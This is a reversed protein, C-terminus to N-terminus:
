DKGLIYPEEETGAGSKIYVGEVMSVVPRIGICQYDLGRHTEGSTSIGFLKNNGNHTAVFYSCGINKIEKTTIINIEDYTLCHVEKIFELKNRDKYM